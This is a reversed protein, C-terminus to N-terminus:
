SGSGAGVSGKTMSARFKGLWKKWSPQKLSEFFAQIEAIGDVSEIVETPYRWVAERSLEVDFAKTRGGHVGTGDLGINAVLSRTPRLCLGNRLFMSAYWCVAWSDVYGDRQRRLMDTYPYSGHIDFDPGRGEQEIRDLLAAANLDLHTWARDWTAWGWSAALRCLFSDALRDPRKVPFMSGAIQMVGAEDRYFDLAGNMFDLFHPSVILDDEIAIACGALRCLEGIGTTISKALGWNHEREIIQVTKFGKVNRIAKRQKAVAEEQEASKAADSFIYLDSQDALHNATLAAMTRSAHDPRNYVFLAIPAPM